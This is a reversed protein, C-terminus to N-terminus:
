SNMSHTLGGVSAGEAVKVGVCNGLRLGTGVAVGSGLLSGVRAGVSTGVGLGLASGVMLVIGVILQGSM